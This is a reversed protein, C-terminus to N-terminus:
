RRFSCSPRGELRGRPAKASTPINLWSTMNVTADDRLDGSASITYLQVLKRLSRTTQADPRFCGCAFVLVLVRLGVQRIKARRRRYEDDYKDGFENRYHNRERCM